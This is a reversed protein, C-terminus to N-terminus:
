EHTFGHTFCRAQQAVLVAFWCLLMESMLLGTLSFGSGHSQNAACGEVVLELATSVTGSFAGHVETNMRRTFYDRLFFNMIIKNKNVGSLM